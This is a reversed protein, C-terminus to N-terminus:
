IRKKEKRGVPRQRTRFNQSHDPLHLNQQLACAPVLKKYREPELKSRKRSVIFSYSLQGTRGGAGEVSHLYNSLRTYEADREIQSIRSQEERSIYHALREDTIPYICSPMIYRLLGCGSTSYLAV